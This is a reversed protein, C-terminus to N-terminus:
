THAVYEWLVRTEDAEFAYTNPKTIGIIGTHTLIEPRIHVNRYGIGGSFVLADAGQLHAYCAFIGEVISRVYVAYALAEPQKGVVADDILQKTDNQEALGAIGAHTNLLQSVSASDYEGSETLIRAIDPDISGSRTIMVVGELPTAGMTTHVSRGEHVATISSGGGLHAMILKKPTPKGEEACQEAVQRFVSELAIGHFGYRRLKHARAVDRPLAYTYAEPPLTRHFHTDFVCWIPVSPFHQELRDLLALAVPNHLPAFTQFEAIISRADPAYRAPSALGGGHVVRVGIREIDKLARLWADQVDSDSVAIKEHAVCEGDSDYVAAKLWRSGPNLTLVNM